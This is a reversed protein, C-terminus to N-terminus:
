QSDSPKYIVIKGKKFVTELEPLRPVISSTIQSSFQMLQTLSALYKSCAKLNDDLLLTKHKVGETM